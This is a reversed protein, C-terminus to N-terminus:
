TRFYDMKKEFWNFLLTLVGCFVLFFIATSFLPWILGNNATFEQAVYIIERTALINALATDKILTMFENGMPPIVRKIVQLLTIKFFIQSKTMGLVLGAEYQGKPISQIGGRFIESFYCAYNIIFAVCVAAIRGNVGFASWPNGLSLLPPVYFIFIIQLMLPSGRIIWVVTNIIYRLPRFKSMAGFSIILGLPLAGILTVFFITCNIGFSEFLKSFVVSASM